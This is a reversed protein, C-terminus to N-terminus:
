CSACGRTRPRPSATSSRTPPPTRPSTPPWARCRLDRPARRALGPRGGAVGRLAVDSVPGLHRLKDPNIVSRVAHVKGTPSTSLSSTSSATWRRRPHDGGAPRQGLDARRQRGDETWPPGARAHVPGGAAARPVAPGGGLGQRRRRGGYDRGACADRPSRGPRRRGPRRSSGAPWRRVSCARPRTVPNKSTWTIGRASSSRVATRSPSAPSARRDGQLRLRVGRAAPVRCTRDADLKGDPRPLGHVAFRVDRRARRSRTRGQFGWFHGVPATRAALRRRLIGAAGARVAPPQHGAPHHYHGPLGQALRHQRRRQLVRTLRLFAEQVIDEADSVSGTMRYAISFMLPRFETFDAAATQDEPPTTM